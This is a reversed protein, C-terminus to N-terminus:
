HGPPLLRAPKAAAVSEEADSTEDGREVEDIDLGDAQVSQALPACCHVKEDEGGEEDGQRTELVHGGRSGSWASLAPAVCTRDAICWSTCGIVAVRLLKGFILRDSARTSRCRASSTAGASSSGFLEIQNPLERRGRLVILALPRRLIWSCSPCPQGDIRRSSPARPRPAMLGFAFRITPVGVSRLAPLPGTSSALPSDGRVGHEYYAGRRHNPHRTAIESPWGSPQRSTESRARLRGLTPKM